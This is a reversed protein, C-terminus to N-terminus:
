GDSRESVPSPEAENSIAIHLEQVLIELKSAHKFRDEKDGYKMAVIRNQINEVIHDFSKTHNIM